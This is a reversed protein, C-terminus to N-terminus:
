QFPALQNKQDEKLFSSNYIYAADYNLGWSLGDKDDMDVINNQALLVAGMAPLAITFTSSDIEMRSGNAYLKLVGHQQIKKLYLNKFRNKENSSILFILNDLRLNTLELSGSCDFVNLTQINLNRIVSIDNNTNEFTCALFELSKDKFNFVTDGPQFPLLMGTRERIEELSYRALVSEVLSIRKKMFVVRQQQTLERLIDFYYVVSPDKYKKELKIYEADRRVADLDKDYYMWDFDQEEEDFSKELLQVSKKINGALSHSCAADYFPFNEGASVAFASDFYLASAAYNQQDYTRHALRVLRDYQQGVVTFPLLLFVSLFYRM